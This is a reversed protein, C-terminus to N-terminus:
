DSPANRSQSGERAKKLTFPMLEAKGSYLHMYRKWTDWGASGCLASPNVVDAM